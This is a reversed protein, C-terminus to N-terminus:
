GIKLLYNNDKLTKNNTKFYCIWGMHGLPVHRLLHIVYLDKVTEFATVAIVFEEAIKGKIIKSRWM